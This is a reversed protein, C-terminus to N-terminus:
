ERRKFSVTSKAAPRITNRNYLVVMFLELVGLKLMFSDITIIEPPLFDIPAKM